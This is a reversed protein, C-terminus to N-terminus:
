VPNYVSISAMFEARLAESQQLAIHHIAKRTLGMLKITKCITSISVPVGYVSDLEEKVEYLFISPREALLRVLILQGFEGLLAQPGNRHEQPQVDGTHYFKALYRRVTRESINMLIAVSVASMGHVVSLWM